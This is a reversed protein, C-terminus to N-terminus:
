AYITFEFPQDAWRNLAVSAKATGPPIVGRIEGVGQLASGGVNDSQTFAITWTPTGVQGGPLTALVFARGNSAAVAPQSLMWATCGQCVTAQTPVAIPAPGQSLLIRGREQHVIAGAEAIQSVGGLAFLLGLVM